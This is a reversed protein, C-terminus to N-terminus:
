AVSRVVEQDVRRLVDRAIKLDVLITAIAPSCEVRGTKRFLDETYLSVCLTADKITRSDIVVVGTQLLANTNAVRFRNVKPKFPEVDEIVRLEKPWCGNISL